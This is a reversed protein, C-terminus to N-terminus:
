LNNVFLGLGFGFGLGVAVRGGFNPIESELREM